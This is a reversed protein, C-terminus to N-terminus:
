PKEAPSLVLSQAIDNLQQETVAGPIFQVGIYVKLEKSYCLIGDAVVRPVAANSLGPGSFDPDPYSVAATAAESNEDTRVPTYDGWNITSGLRLGPYVTKYYDAQPVEEEYPEFGCCGIWGVPREGDALEVLNFFDGAMACGPSLEERLEWGDPIRLSADFAASAGLPGGAERPFHVRASLYVRRAPDAGGSASLSEPLLPILDAERSAGKLSVSLTLESFERGSISFSYTQGAQWSRSTNKEELFRVGVSIGGPQERGSVLISLEGADRCRKPISLSIRGDEYVASECIRQVADEPKILAPGTFTCGAALGLTLVAAALAPLLTRPSLLIQELRRKMERGNKTMVTAGCAFASLPGRSHVLSLLTRGYSLREEEGLRGVALEDCALECDQRSCVAAAWVLPDFWYLTVCLTRVVAWLHDGQARHCSEHVVVHRLATSDAAAEPTVYIAPRFLGFLCPSPIGAARYVPLRTGPVDMRKRSRLLRRRFRLGSAAFWGGTLAAGGAWILGPLGPQAKGVAPAEPLTEAANDGAFAEAAGSGRALAPASEVANMVSVPSPVSFPILLRLAVLLWLGYRLRRSIRNQLLRRLLLVVLILIGSTIVIETM